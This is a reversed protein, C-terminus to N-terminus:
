RGESSKGLSSEKTGATRVTNRKHDELSRVTCDAEKRRKLQTGVLSNPVNLVLIDKDYPLVEVSCASNLPQQAKASKKKPSSESNDRSGQTMNTMHKFPSKHLRSSSRLIQLEHGQPMRKEERAESSLGTRQRAESTVKRRRNILRRQNGSEQQTQYSKASM